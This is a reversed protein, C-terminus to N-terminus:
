ICFRALVSLHDSVKPAPPLVFCDLVSLVKKPDNYFIHDVHIKLGAHTYIQDNQKEYWRPSLCSFNEQRLVNLEPSDPKANFDGALVIPFPGVKNEIEAERLERVIELIAQIQGIRIESAKQSRPNKIDYRDEGKLTSLHTAMFYIVKDKDVFLPATILNRPETDRNGTSFLSAGSIQTFIPTHKDARPYGAKPSHWPWEAFPKNTIIANGQTVRSFGAFLPQEWKNSHRHFDSDVYEAFFSKYENENGLKKELEKSNEFFSGAETKWIRTSEQVAIIDPKANKESIYESIAHADQRPEIKKLRDRRGGGANLTVVIFESSGAM